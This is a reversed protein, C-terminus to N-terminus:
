QPLDLDNVLRDSAADHGEILSMVLGSFAYVLFRLFKSANLLKHSLFWLLMILLRLPPIDFLGVLELLISARAAFTFQESLLLPSVEFEFEGDCPQQRGGKGGCALLFIFLSSEDDGGGSFNEEHRDKEKDSRCPATAASAAVGLVVPKHLLLM